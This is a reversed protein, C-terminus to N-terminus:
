HVQNDKARDVSALSICEPHVLEGSVPLGDNKVSDLAVNPDTTSDRTPLVTLQVYPVAELEILRKPQRYNYSKLNQLLNVYDVNYAFVTFAFQLFSSTRAKFM